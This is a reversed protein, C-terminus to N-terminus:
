TNFIPIIHIVIGAIFLILLLQHIREKLNFFYIQAVVRISWFLAIGLLLVNGIATTLVENFHFYFIYSILFFLFALCINLTQIVARNTTSVLMLQEKWKLVKWFFLHFVGFSLNFFAALKIWFM